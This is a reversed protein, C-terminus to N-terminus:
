ALRVGSYDAVTGTGPPCDDGSAPRRCIEYVWGLPNIAAGGGPPTFSISPIAKPKAIMIIDLVGHESAFVAPEAFAAFATKGGWTLTVLMSVAVVPWRSISIKGTPAQIGM